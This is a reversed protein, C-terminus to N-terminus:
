SSEIGEQEWHLGTHLIRDRSRREGPHLSLHTCQTPSQPGARLQNNTFTLILAISELLDNLEM